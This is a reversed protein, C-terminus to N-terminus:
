KDRWPDEDTKDLDGGSMIAGACFAFLGGNRRALTLM